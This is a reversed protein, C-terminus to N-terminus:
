NLDLGGFVAKVSKQVSQGLVAAHLFYQFLVIVAEHEAENKFPPLVIKFGKYFFFGLLSFREPEFGHQM